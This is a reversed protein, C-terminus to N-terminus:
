QISQDISARSTAGHDTASFIRGEFRDVLGTKGLALSM